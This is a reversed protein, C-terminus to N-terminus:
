YKKTFGVTAYSFPITAAEELTWKGPVEWTYDPDTQVQLSLGGFELLGMIRKDSIIGSYEYGFLFEPDTPVVTNYNQVIATAYM